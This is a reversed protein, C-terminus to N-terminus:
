RLNCLKNCIDNITSNAVVSPEMNDPKSNWWHHHSGSWGAGINKQMLVKDEVHRGSDCLSHGLYVRLQHLLATISYDWCQAPTNGWRTTALLCSLVCDRRTALISYQAALLPQFQSQWTAALLMDHIVMHTSLLVGHIVMHTSLLKGHIIMHTSLLGGYIVMYTSLLM